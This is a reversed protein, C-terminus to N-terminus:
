TDSELMQKALDRLKHKQIKGSATMPMEDLIFTRRPIKFSAIKGRCAAVIERELEEHSSTCDRAAVVFAVPIEDHQEDPCGVIAVLELPQADLLFGEVEMPSVNEGGVKLMDKYRGLFRLYGDDRMIGMDGTHLWGDADVAEATLGPEKYYGQMVLYGRLLIEGPEGNPVPQGSEGDVIAFEYGPMPYGSTECRQEATGDLFGIAGCAWGETLGYASVVPCFDQIVRRVTPLTSDMGAPISGVRLSSVDVGLRERAEMLGAYHVDFGHVMTVHESEILQVGEDPDFRETLVLKSGTLLFMIGMESLGYLHFLPLNCLFADEATIELREARDAIARLPRHSHQVGKPFGTTGSTYLIMIPEEPDVNGTETDSTPAEDGRAICDPWWLAGPRREAGITIVRKLEPFEDTSPHGPAQSGLDPMLSRTMDLFDIPGSVDNQILTTANSHKVVFEVDRERFRTNLPVSLAGIRAAGYYVHLWEPRNMLWLAIKDGPRVGIALLGAAAQEVDREFEAFSWRQDGFVLAEADGFREAAERPLEGITRYTPTPESM